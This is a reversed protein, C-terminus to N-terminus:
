KKLFRAYAIYIAALGVLDYAIRTLRWDSLINAIINTDAIGLLGWNIGGIILIIISILEIIDKKM